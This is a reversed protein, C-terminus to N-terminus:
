LRNETQRREAREAALQFATEIEVLGSPRIDAPQKVVVAPQAPKHVRRWARADRRIGAIKEHSKLCTRCTVEGLKTTVKVGRFFDVDRGCASFHAFRRLHIILKQSHGNRGNGNSSPVFNEQSSSPSLLLLSSSKM